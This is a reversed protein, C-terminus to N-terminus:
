HGSLPAPPIHELPDKSECRRRAHPGHHDIASVCRPPSEASRRYGALRWRRWANRIATFVNALERVAAAPHADTLPGVGTDVKLALGLALNETKARWLFRSRRYPRDLAPLQMITQIILFCLYYLLISSIRNSSAAFATASLRLRRSTSFPNSPNPTAAVTADTPISPESAARRPKLPGGNGPFVGAPGHMGDHPSSTQSIESPQPPVQEQWSPSKQMSPSHLNSHGM